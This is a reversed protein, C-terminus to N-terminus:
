QGGPLTIDSLKEYVKVVAADDWVGMGLSAAMTFLQQAMAALSVM